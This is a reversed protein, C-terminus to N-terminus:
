GDKVEERGRMREGVIGPKPKVRASYEWKACLVNGGSRYILRCISTGCGFQLAGSGSLVVRTPAVPVTTAITTAVRVAVLSALMVVYRCLMVNM